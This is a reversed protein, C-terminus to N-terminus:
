TKIFMPQCCFPSSLIYILLYNYLIKQISLIVLVIFVNYILILMNTIYISPHHQYLYALNLRQLWSQISPACTAACELQINLPSIRPRTRWVRFIGVGCNELILIFNHCKLSSSCTVNQTMLHPGSSHIQIKATSIKKHKSHKFYFYLHIRSICVQKISLLITLYM